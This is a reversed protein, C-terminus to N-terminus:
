HTASMSFHKAGCKQRDIIHRFTGDSEHLKGTVADKLPIVYKIGM